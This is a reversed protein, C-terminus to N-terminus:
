LKALTADVRKILNNDKPHAAKFMQAIRHIARTHDKSLSMGSNLYVDIASFVKYKLNIPPRADAIELLRHVDDPRHTRIITAIAAATLGPRDSYQLADLDLSPTKTHETMQEFIVNKQEWREKGPYATVTLGEYAVALELIEKPVIRSWHALRTRVFDSLESYSSGYSIPFIRDGPQMKDELEREETDLCLRYHRPGTEAGYKIRIWDILMGLNPDELGAGCGIFVLSKTAALVQQVFQAHPHSILTQYSTHGLVVSASDTYLGHLHFIPRVRDETRCWAGVDLGQSWNASGRGLALEALLDYNTTAIPARTSEIADYIDRNLLSLDGVGEKLWAAFEGARRLRSEVQQAVGLLDLLDGSDLSDIQRKCWDSSRIGLGGIRDLGNRILGNWSTAPDNMTASATVGTGLILVADGQGITRKLEQLLM